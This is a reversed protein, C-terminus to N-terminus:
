LDVQVESEACLPCVLYGDEVTWAHALNGCDTCRPIGAYQGDDSDAELADAARSLVGNWTEGDRKLGDLRDGLGPDIKLTKRNTM